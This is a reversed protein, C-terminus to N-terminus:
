QGDLRRGRIAALGLAALGFGLLALSAPEPIARPSGFIVPSDTGTDGVFSAGWPDLSFFPGVNAALVRILASQVPGVLAELAPDAVTTETLIQFGAIDAPVYEVLILDGALLTTGAGVGLTASEGVWSFSGSSLTGSDDVTASLTFSGILDSVLIAFPIDLIAAPTGPTGISANVSFQDTTADYSVAASELPPFVQFTAGIDAPDILAASVTAPLPIALVLLSLLLVFRRM